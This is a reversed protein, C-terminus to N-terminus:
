AALEEGVCDNLRLPVIDPECLRVFVWDVLMDIDAECVDVPVKLWNCLRVPVDLPVTAAVPECDCVPVSLLEMDELEANVSLSLPVELVEIEGEKDRDIVAVVVSLWDDLELVDCSGLEDCDAVAVDELLRM